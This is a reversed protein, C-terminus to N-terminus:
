DDLVTELLLKLGFHAAGRQIRERDGRLVVHRHLTRTPGAVAFHVLGVPKESTGGTPGAIGSVGLAYDSALARRAGQAMQTVVAESVAGYQALAEAAVGLESIKVRDAYSVIAGQFVDSAPHATICASVLGGTCSEALALTKGRTRLAELVVGALDTDGEGYVLRGLRERIARAARDAADRAEERTARLALPKVEIEPFHARYGITVGFEAEIGALQDNVSAETAGYVRLRVQAAYESLRGEIENRVYRDFMPQMERPVGPFFFALSTGVRVAFGPATGWDNPLVRAGSPFDAQKQNSKGFRVGYKEYRLRLRELSEPDRVLPVGLARAVSEATIDDTTPGLGGTAVLLDHKSCLELVAAEIDGRQDSVTLMRDVSAGLATIERCLWSANTNEIEGRVLETGISLLAVTM